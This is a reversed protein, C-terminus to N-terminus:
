KGTEKKSVTESIADLSDGESVELFLVALLDFFASTMFDSLWASSDVRVTARPSLVGVFVKSAFLILSGPKSTGRSSLFIFYERESSSEGLGVDGVEVLLNDGINLFFLIRTLAVSLLIFLALLEGVVNFSSQMRLEGTSRNSVVRTVERGPWPWGTTGM